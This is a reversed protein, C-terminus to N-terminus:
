MKEAELIVIKEAEMQYTHLYDSAITKLLQHFEKKKGMGQLAICQIWDRDDPNISKEQSLQLAEKWKEQRLLEKIYPYLNDGKTTGASTGRMSSPGEPLLEIRILVLDMFELWEQDKETATPTKANPTGKDTKPEQEFNTSEKTEWNESPYPTPGANPKEQPVKQVVETTDVPNEIDPQNETEQSISPGLLYLLLLLVLLALLIWGIKPMKKPLEEVPAMPVPSDPRAKIGKHVLQRRIKEIELSKRVSKYNSFQKNFSKDTDLKAEFAVREELSMNGEFFREFEEINEIEKDM